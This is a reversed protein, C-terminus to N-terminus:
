STLPFCLISIEPAGIKTCGRPHVLARCGHARICSFLAGTCWFLARTCWFLAREARQEGICVTELACEAYAAQQWGCAELSAECKRRWSDGGNSSSNRRRSINVFCV